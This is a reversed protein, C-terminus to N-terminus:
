LACFAALLIVVTFLLPVLSGALVDLWDWKCQFTTQVYEVSCMAVLTALFSFVSYVSASLLSYADNFEIGSVHAAISTAVCLFLLFCIFIIAGAKLHKLRNSVLLWSFLKNM